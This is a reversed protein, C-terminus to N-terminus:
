RRARRRRFLLLLAAWAPPGVPAACGCGTALPAESRAGSSSEDSSEDGGSSSSGDAGTGAPAAPDRLVTVLDDM